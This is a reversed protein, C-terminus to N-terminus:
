TGTGDDRETAVRWADAMEIVKLSAMHLGVRACAAVKRDTMRESSAAKMRDLAALIEEAVQQRVRAAILLEVAALGAVHRADDELSESPGLWWGRRYAQVLEDGFEPEGM